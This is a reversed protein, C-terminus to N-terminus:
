FPTHYLADVLMLRDLHSFIYDHSNSPQHWLAGAMLPLVVHGAFSFSYGGPLCLLAPSFPSVSGSYRM